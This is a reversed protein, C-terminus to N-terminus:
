EKQKESHIRLRSYTRDSEKQETEQTYLKANLDAGIYMLGKKKYKSSITCLKNYFKDKDEATAIATPAYAAVTTVYIQGSRTLTMPREDMTEIDKIYNRLEHKIVIAAGHYCTAGQSGGSLVWSYSSKKLQETIEDGVRTEQIVLIDIRKFDM